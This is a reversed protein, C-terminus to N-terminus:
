PALISVRSAPGSVVIAATQPSGLTVTGLTPNKILNPGITVQSAQAGDRLAVPVGGITTCPSCLTNAISVQNGGTGGFAIMSGSINVVSGGGVQLVPGNQLTLTSGNLLEVFDGTVRLASGGALLALAGNQVTLRSADLRAVPGVSTVRARLSLDFASATTTMASAVRLSLLPASAEYLATDIKVASGGSVTAALTGLLTGPHRVPRETGLTLGTEPDAATAAGTLSVMAAGPATGIQSTAGTLLFLSFDGPGSVTLASGPATSLLGGPLDLPSTFADLVPRAVELSAGGELRVVGGGAVVVTSDLTVLAFTEGSSSLRAGAGLHLVHGGVGLGSDDGFLLPRIMNVQAQSGLGVLDGGTFVLSRTIRILDEPTADPSTLTAGTGLGLVRGGLDAELDFLQALPRRLALSAGSGLTILDGATRLTGASWFILGLASPGGSDLVAGGDMALLAGGSVLDAGTGVVLPQDLLTVRSGSGLRVTDLGTSVLLPMEPSDADASRRTFSLLGFTSPSLNRLTAGDELSLFHGTASVEGGALFVLQLASLTLEAEPGLSIVSRPAASGAGVHVVGPNMSLVEQEIALRAGQELRVLDGGTTVTSRALDLLGFLSDTGTVSAGAGLLLLSGGTALTSDFAQVLTTAPPFLTIAAGPGVEVMSRPAGAATGSQVEGENVTLLGRALDMRSDAGLLALPGGTTLTSSFVEFLGLFGPGSSLDAGAGLNVGAGGVTLQSDALALLRGELSVQTAPPIEFGSATGSVTVQSSEIALLPNFPIQVSETFVILDPLTGSVESLSFGPNFVRDREFGAQIRRLTEEALRDLEREVATFLAQTRRFSVDFGAMEGAVGPSQFASGAGVEGALAESLQAAEAARENSVRRQLREPPRDSQERPRPAQAVRQALTQAQLVTLTQVPGFQAAAGAGVVNVAQLPSLAVARPVARLVVEIPVTAQLASFVTRPLGAEEVVETVLLSGRVAAVANPTRVEVSEGPRMLGRAVGVAARGQRLEVVARGPEETVTFVSLERVTVVAKGGLLLRVISDERTEIRDRLFVSDKFRLPQPEPLAARVVTARGELTTVV